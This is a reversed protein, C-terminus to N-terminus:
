LMFNRSINFGFHLENKLISNNNAPILQNEVTQTGNTFILSFNHNFTSFDIGFALNGFYSDRSHTKYSLNYVYETLISTIRTIQWKITSGLAISTNNQVKLRILNQHLIYTSIQASVKSSIQKGLLTGYVYSLRHKFDYIEKELETLEDGSVGVNGYLSLTVPTGEKEKFVRYKLSFEHLNEQSNRGLGITLDDTIGYDFALRWNAYQDLGFFEPYGSSVKGFKHTIYFGLNRQYQTELTQYNLGLTGNFTKENLEFQGIAKQISVLIFLTFLFFIQKM